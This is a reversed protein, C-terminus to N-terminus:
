RGYYKNLRDFKSWFYFLNEQLNEPERLLIRKIKSLQNAYWPLKLSNMWRKLFTKSQVLMLTLKRFSNNTAIALRSMGRM